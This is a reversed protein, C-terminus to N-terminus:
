LRFGGKVEVLLGKQNLYVQDVYIYAIWCVVGDVEVVPVMHRLFTPVKRENFLEKLKKGNRTRDGERWNRLVVTCQKDIIDRFHISIFYGNVELERGPPEVKEEFQPYTLEGMLVWGHSVELGLKGWFSVKFSTRTPAKFRLLKEADLPRKFYELALRRVLETKLFPDEPLKFVIRGGLERITGRYPVLLKEVFDDLEWITSALNLGARELRPNIERLLPVVKHRVYNRQFRTDYNSADVVFELNRSSAYVEIEERTFFILPRFFKGHLPKLGVLGFIGTGKTLRLLMTELLDNANHATCIYDAGLKRAADELFSYRLERAAEEVSLHNAKAYSKVDARGESFGIGRHECLSRVFQVESAAEPRLMHNFTAVHIEIPKEGRVRDFLDLMVVSDVGGSVALLFKPRDVYKLIYSELIGKFREYVDRM